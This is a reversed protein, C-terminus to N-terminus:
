IKSEDWGRLKLVCRGCFNALSVYSMTCTQYEAPVHEPQNAAAPLSGASTSAHHLWLAHGVEHALTEGNIAGPALDQDHILHVVGTSALVSWAWAQLGPNVIAAIGMNGAQPANEDFVLAVLGEPAELYSQKRLETSFREEFAM